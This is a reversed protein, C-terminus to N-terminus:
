ENKSHVKQLAKPGMGITEIEENTTLYFSLESDDSLKNQIFFNLHSKLRQNPCVLIVEPFPQNANDQWEDSNFYEFYKKIRRRMLIPPVDDFIDLFYRKANGAKDKLAFFADPSPSILHLMGYLETKTRFDLVVKNKKILDLLSLYIDGLLLCHTKLQDKYKTVRWIRNLPKIKLDNLKKLYRKGKNDLSYIAPQPALKNDYDQIILKKFVLDNLWEQILRHHKHGLLPQIQKRNLYRFKYLLILIEKQRSKIKSHKNTRKM